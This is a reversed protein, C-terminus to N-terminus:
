AAALESDRPVAGAVRCTLAAACFKKCRLGLRLATDSQWGLLLSSINSGVGGHKHRIQTSDGGGGSNVGNAAPLKSKQRGAKVTADFAARWQLSMERLGRPVVIRKGSEASKIRDTGHAAMLHHKGMM